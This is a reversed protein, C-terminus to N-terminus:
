QQSIGVTGGSRKFRVIDENTSNQWATLGQNGMSSRRMQKRLLKTTIKDGTTAAAAAAAHLQASSARRSGGTGFTQRRARLQKSSRRQQQKKKKTNKSSSNSKHRGHQKATAKDFVVDSRKMTVSKRKGAIVISGRRNLARLKGNDHRRSQSNSSAESQARAKAATKKRKQKKDRKSRQQQEQHKFSSGSSKSKHKLTSAAISVVSDGGAAAVRAENKLARIRNLLLKNARKDRLGGLLVAIKRTFVSRFHTAVPKHVVDHAVQRCWVDAQKSLLNASSASRPMMMVIRTNAMLWDPSSAKLKDLVADDGDILLLDCRQASLANIPSMLHEHVAANGGLKGGGNSARKAARAFARLGIAIDSFVNLQINLNARHSLSGAVLEEKLAVRHKNDADILFVRM